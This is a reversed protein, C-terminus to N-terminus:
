FIKVCFYGNGTSSLDLRLDWVQLSNNLKSIVEKSYGTSDLFLDLKKNLLDTIKLSLLDKCPKPLGEQGPAEFIESLHSADGKLIADEVAKLWAKAALIEM